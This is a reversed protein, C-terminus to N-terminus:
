MYDLEDQIKSDSEDRSELNAELVVIQVNEEIVFHSDQSNLYKVDEDFKVDWNVM